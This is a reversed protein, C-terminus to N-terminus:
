HLQALAVVKGAVKGAANSLPGKGEVLREGLYTALVSLATLAITRGEPAELMGILKRLDKRSGEM